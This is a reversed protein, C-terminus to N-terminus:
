KSPPIVDPLELAKGERDVFTFFSRRKTPDVLDFQVIHHSDVAVSPSYLGLDLDETDIEVILASFDLEYCQNLLKQDEAPFSAKYTANYQPQFYRILGAEALCIQQHQTLPNDLISLFRKSDSEDRIATKDIGDFSSIVRYQPYEFALLILEDDPLNHQTDALIKQLTSHSKLRDIASRKGDAYAQGVYLVELERFCATDLAPSISLMSSPVHRIMKGDKAYTEIDRHPYSSIRAGVAGDSLQFPFNFDASLAKGKLKYNVKGKASKGDFSFSDPDYSSSPRRCILYIHCSNSIELAEGEAEKGSMLESPTIGIIRASFLSVAFESLYKRDPVSM